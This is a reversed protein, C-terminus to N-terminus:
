APTVSAPTNVVVPSVHPSRPAAHGRVVAAKVLTLHRDAFWALHKGCRIKAEGEDVAVVEGRLDDWVADSVSVRDGIGFGSV